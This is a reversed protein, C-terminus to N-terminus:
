EHRQMVFDIGMLMSIIMIVHWDDLVRNNFQVLDYQFKLAISVICIRAINRNNDHFTKVTKKILLNGKCLGLSNFNNLPHNNRGHM